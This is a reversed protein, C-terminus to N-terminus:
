EFVATDNLTEKMRSQLQSLATQPKGFFDCAKVTKYKSPAILKLYVNQLDFEENQNYKMTIEKKRFLKLKCGKAIIIVALQLLRKNKNRM